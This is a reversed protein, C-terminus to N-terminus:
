GGQLVTFHTLDLVPPSVSAWFRFGPPLSKWSTLVIWTVPGQGDPDGCGDPDGRGGPGSSGACPGWLTTHVGGDASYASSVQNGRLLGTPRIM